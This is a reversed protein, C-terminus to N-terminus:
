WKAELSPCEYIRPTRQVPAILFPVDGLKEIVRRFLKREDADHDVVQGLHIAVYEGKYKRLLQGLQRNFAGEEVDLQKEAERQRATLKLPKRTKRAAM